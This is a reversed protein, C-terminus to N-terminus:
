PTPTPDPPFPGPRPPAPPPVTDAVPSGALRIRNLGPNQTRITPTAPMIDDEEALEDRSPM